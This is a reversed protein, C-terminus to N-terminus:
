ISRGGVLKLFIHFLAPREYALPQRRVEAIMAASSGDLGIEAEIPNEAGDFAVDFESRIQQIVQSKFDLSLTDRAAVEQLIIVHSASLRSAVVRVPRDGGDLVTVALSPRQQDSRKGSRTVIQMM